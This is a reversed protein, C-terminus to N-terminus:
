QRTRVKKKFKLFRKSSKRCSKVKREVLDNRVFIRCRQYKVNHTLEQRYKQKKPDCKNFIQAWNTVDSEIELNKRNIWFYRGNDIIEIKCKEYEEKSIQLMKYISLFFIIKKRISLKTLKIITVIKDIM